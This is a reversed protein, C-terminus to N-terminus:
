AVGRAHWRGAAVRSLPEFESGGFGARKFATVNARRRPGRFLEPRERGDRFGRFVAVACSSFGIPKRRSSSSGWLVAGRLRSEVTEGRL